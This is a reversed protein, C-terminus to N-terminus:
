SWFPAFPIVDSLEAVFVGLNFLKKAIVEVEESLPRFSM